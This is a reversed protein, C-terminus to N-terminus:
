RQSMEAGSDVAVARHEAGLVLFSGLNNALKLETQSATRVVAVVGASSCRTRPVDRIAATVIIPLLGLLVLCVADDLVYVGNRVAASIGSGTAPVNSM